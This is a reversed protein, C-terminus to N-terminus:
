AGWGIMAGPVGPSVWKVGKSEVRRKFEGRIERWDAENMEVSRDDEVRAVLTAEMRHVACRRRDEEILRCVYASPSADFGNAIREDLIIKVDDPLSIQLISM